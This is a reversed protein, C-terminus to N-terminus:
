KRHYLIKESVVYETSHILCSGSVVCKKLLTQQLNNCIWGPVKVKDKVAVAIADELLLVHDSAVSKYEHYGSRVIKNRSLGTYVDIIHKIQFLQIRILCQFTSKIKKRALVRCFFSTGLYM